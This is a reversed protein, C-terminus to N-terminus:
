FSLTFFCVILLLQIVDQVSQVEIETLNEVYVGKRTDERM